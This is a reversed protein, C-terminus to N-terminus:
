KGLCFNSFLQDLLEERYSVGIVEGLSDFADKLDVAVMELPVQNKSSVIAAEVSKLAQSVLAKQRANSLYNYDKSKIQQFNFLEKLKDKLDDLGTPTITNGRVIIKNKIISLDINTELDSKNVFIIIPIDKISDIREIDENTLLENNNLVYIALDAKNIAEISRDVGIREVIDETERIGATDILNLKIGDLTITGEVIDRTTGAINTVIAKKQDLLHNLISSKGVNPKGVIAVDIGNKLISGDKATSLLRQLEDRIPILRELVLEHTMDEADYEPYDFNVELSAQLNVLIERDAKILKSLNGEVRNMAYKRSEDTEAEILDNVAEAEVLDIRGNLFAKKTFEGPEALRCGNELLLELVRNTTAIGGHSNIEVVDEMTFTKPALMVSVLVEDIVEDNDVIHGYNITHSDVKTLDKGKFISNVIEVVDPGSCRVISIAGVGLSTSIACINENM